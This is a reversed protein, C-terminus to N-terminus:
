EGGAAQREMGENRRAIVYNVGAAAVLGVLAVGGWQWGGTKVLADFAHVGAPVTPDVPLGYKDPSDELIYIYHLGGVENAGYVQANKKGRENKLYDVRENAMELMEEREGFNLATSTCTLVCAPETRPPVPDPQNELDPSAQEPKKFDDETNSIRDICMVCRYIGKDDQDYRCAQFPCTAVCYNCGICKKKDTMVVYAEPDDDSVKHKQTAGSPCVKVCTADTCHMCQIKTFYWYIDDDAPREEPENFLIRNWCQSTLEMPNEYTGENVTYTYTRENWQKCAVQCARCGTCRSADFLIAYAM